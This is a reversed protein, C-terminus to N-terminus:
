FMLESKLQSKLSWSLVRVKLKLKIKLSGVGFKLDSVEFELTWNWVAVEFRLNWSNVEADFKVKLRWSWCVEINFLLKLNWSAFVVDLKLKM